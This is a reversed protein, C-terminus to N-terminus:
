YRQVPQRLDHAVVRQVGGHDVDPARFRIQLLFDLLDGPRSNSWRAKARIQLNLVLPATMTCHASCAIEGRVGPKLSRVRGVVQGRERGLVVFYLQGFLHRPQNRLLQRKHHKQLGELPQGVKGADTFNRVFHDLENARLM